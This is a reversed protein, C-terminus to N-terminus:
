IRGGKVNIQTITKCLNVCVRIFWAKEHEESEFESKKELYKIYVNQAIYEADSM